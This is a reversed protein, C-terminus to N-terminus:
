WSMLWLDTDLECNLEMTKGAASHKLVQKPTASVRKVAYM